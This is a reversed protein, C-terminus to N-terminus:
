RQSRALLMRTFAGGTLADLLAEAELIRVTRALDAAGLLDRELQLRRREFYLAILTRVLELQATELTRLERLLSVEESAFVLRDLDFVVRAELMLDDDTSINAPDNGTLGRLDIAQGRRLGGRVSPLLGRLRARDIADHVRAPAEARHELAARVVEEVGPEHRYRTLAAEIRAESLAPANARNPASEQGLASAPLLALLLTVVMWRSM